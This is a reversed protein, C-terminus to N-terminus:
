FSIGEGQTENQKEVGSGYLGLCLKDQCKVHDKRFFAFLVLQNIKELHPYQPLIESYNADHNKTSM